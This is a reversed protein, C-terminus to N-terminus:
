KKYPIEGPKALGFRERAEKEIEQTDNLQEKRQKLKQNEKQLVQKQQVTVQMNEHIQWLSFFRYGLFLCGIIIILLLIKHYLYAVKDKERKRRRIARIPRRRNEQAVVYERGKIQGTYNWYIYNTYWM